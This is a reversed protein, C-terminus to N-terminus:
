IIILILITLPILMVGWCFLISYFIIKSKKYKFDKEKTSGNLFMWIVFPFVFLISILISLFYEM